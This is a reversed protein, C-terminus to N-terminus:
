LIRKKCASYKLKLNIFIDIKNTNYLTTTTTTTPNSKITIRITVVFFSTPIHSLYSKDKFVFTIKCTQYIYKPLLLEV